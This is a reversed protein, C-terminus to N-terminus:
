DRSELRERIAELVKEASEDVTERDTLFEVEAAPPVEYPDSVGTFLEIEGARARRYLGKVDREECVQLPANVFVELFDGVRGRVEDRAARYPSIASVLVIVGHKTLLGAVFGIRRINEDRDARSFGLGKSLYARVEDGDLTEVRFGEARLRASVSASLTSKGAGSLGTFWVTLGPHERRM